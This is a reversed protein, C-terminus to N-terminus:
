MKSAKVSVIEVVNLKVPQMMTIIERGSGGSRVDRKLTLSQRLSLRTQRDRAVLKVSGECRDRTVSVDRESDLIEEM